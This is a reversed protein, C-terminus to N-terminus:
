KAAESNKMAMTSLQDAVQAARREALDAIGVVANRIDCQYRDHIAIGSLMEVIAWLSSEIHTVALSLDDLSPLGPSPRTNM